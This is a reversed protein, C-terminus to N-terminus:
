LRKRCCCYKLARRPPVSRLSNQAKANSTDFLSAASLAAVRAGTLKLLNRRGADPMREIAGGNEPLDNM